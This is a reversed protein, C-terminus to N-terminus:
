RLPNPEIDIRGYDFSGPTGRHEDIIVATFLFRLVANLREVDGNAAVQEWYARTNPGVLGALVQGAPRVITNRQLTTIREEVGKRM